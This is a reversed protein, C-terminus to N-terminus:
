ARPRIGFRKEIDDLCQLLREMESMGFPTVAQMPEKEGLLTIGARRAYFRKGYCLAQNITRIMFVIIPLLAEHLAEAQAHAEPTNQRYLDYLRVQAALVDPAPILGSIGARLNSMFEIGGHGCFTALQGNTKDILAQTEVATGEAKIMKLNPHNKYLRVLGDLSLNFTLNFPNHQIGVPCSLADISHGFFRILAEEGGELQHPPQLIILDAGAACAQKAFRTQEQASQEGITVMLPVRKQILDSVMQVLALREQTTHKQVETILGLVMIGHAGSAIVHEVQRQMAAQDITGDQHHFAYLVPYLGHFPSTTMLSRKQIAHRRVAFAHPEFGHKLANEAGIM